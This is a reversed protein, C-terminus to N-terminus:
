QIGAADLFRYNNIKDGIRTNHPNRQLVATTVSIVSARTFQEFAALKNNKEGAPKDTLNDHSNPPPPSSFSSFVITCRSINGYPESLRIIIIVYRNGTQLFM